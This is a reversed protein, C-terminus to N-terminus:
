YLQMITTVAKIFFITIIIIFSVIWNDESFKILFFTHQRIRMKLQM